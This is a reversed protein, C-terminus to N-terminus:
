AETGVGKKNAQMAEVEYTQAWREAVQWVDELLGWETERAWQKRGLSKAVVM